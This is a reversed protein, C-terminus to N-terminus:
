IKKLFNQLGSSTFFIKKLYALLTQKYPSVNISVCFYVLNGTLTLNKVEPDSLGSRRSWLGFDSSYYLSSIQHNQFVFKNWHTTQKSSFICLGLIKGELHGQFVNWNTKLFETASITHFLFNAIISIFYTQLPFM